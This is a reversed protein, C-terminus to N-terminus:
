DDADQLHEVQHVGDCGRRALMVRRHERVLHPSAREGPLVAEPEAGRERGEQQEQEHREEDVAHVRHSLLASMAATPAVPSRAITMGGGFLWVRDRTTRAIPREGTCRNRISTAIAHIMGAAPSSTVDSSGGPM